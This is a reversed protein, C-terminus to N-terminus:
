EKPVFPLGSYRNKDLPVNELAPLDFRDSWAESGNDYQWASWSIGNEYWPSPILPRLATTYQATHLPFQSLWTEKGFKFQNISWGNTYVIPKYQVRSALEFLLPKFNASVQSASTAVEGARPEFDVTHPYTLHRTSLTNLFHNAQEKWPSEKIFLHYSGLFDFSQAEALEWYELFKEDVGMHGMTARLIVGRVGADKLKPFLDKVQNHRSIDVVIDGPGLPKIPPNPIPAPTTVVPTITYRGAPTNEPIDVTIM